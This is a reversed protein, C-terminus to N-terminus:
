LLRGVVVSVLTAASPEQRTEDLTVEKTQLSRRRCLGIDSLVGEHDLAVTEALAM